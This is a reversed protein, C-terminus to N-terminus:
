VTLCVKLISIDIGQGVRTSFSAGMTTRKKTEQSAEDRGDMNVVAVQLLFIKVSKM